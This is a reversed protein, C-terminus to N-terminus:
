LKVALLSRTGRVFKFRQTQTAGSPDASVLKIRTRKTIVLAPHLRILPPADGGHLVKSGLQRRKCGNTCSLNISGTSLGRVSRLALLKGIV